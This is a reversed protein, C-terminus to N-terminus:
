GSPYPIGLDTPERRVPTQAHHSLISTTPIEVKKHKSLTFPQGTGGSGSPRGGNSQGSTSGSHHIMDPMAIEFLIYYKASFLFAM